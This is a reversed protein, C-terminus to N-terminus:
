VNSSKKKLRILVYAVLLLIGNVTYVGTHLTKPAVSSWVWIGVYILIFLLLVIAKLAKSQFSTVVIYMGALYIIVIIEKFIFIDFIDPYIRFYWLSLLVVPISLFLAGLLWKNRQKNIVSM